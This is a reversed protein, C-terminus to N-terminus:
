LPHSGFHQLLLSPFQSQILTWNSSHALFVCRVQLGVVSKARQKCYFGMSKSKSESKIHKPLPCSFTQFLCRISQKLTVQLCILERLTVVFSWQELAKDGGWATILLIFTKGTEQNNSFGSSSTRWFLEQFWGRGIFLICKNNHM